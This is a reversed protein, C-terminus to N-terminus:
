AREDSPPTPSHEPHRRGRRDASGRGRRAGRHVSWLCRCGNSSSGTRNVRGGDNRQMGEALNQESLAKSLESREGRRKWTVLEGAEPFLHHRRTAEEDLVRGAVRTQHETMLPATM